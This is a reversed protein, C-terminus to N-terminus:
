SSVGLNWLGGVDVFVMDFGIKKDYGSSIPHQWKSSNYFDQQIRLRGHM